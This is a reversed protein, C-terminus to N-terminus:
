RRAAVVRECRRTRDRPGAHAVDRGPGCDIVDLGPGGSIVDRGSGGLLVDAGAGGSVSDHGAGADVCDDGGRAAIRDDGRGAMLFDGRATGRLRDRRDTGFRRRSEAFSLPSCPPTLPTAESGNAAAGSPPLLATFPAAPAPAPASTSSGSGATGAGTGSTDDGGGGDGDGPDGPDAPPPPPAFSPTMWPAPETTDGARFEFTGYLAPDMGECHQEFDVGFSRLSGDPEFRAETVTFEGEITNCGRGNGGVDIGAGIGNFPYRSATYHGPALIDGDPAAFDGFWWDGNDGDIGFGVYHRAGGVGISANDPTYSWDLGQGIYDGPESDMVLRTRGGWAFAELSVDHVAGGSETLRLTAARTGAEPALYRVWVQCSSGAVVTRGSCDDARVAFDAPADDGVVAASAISVPGGDALVTVPLALGARGHDTEPWRVHSAAAAFAGPPGVQGIRVEGFLAPGGGECYQTYVIWLRNVGGDADTGIDKVEFHGAIQNCGRGDGGIDIGPRGWARFPARQADTYVGEALEAGPPAAFDLDFYDGYPGGEVHVTLYAPTGGVSVADRGGVYLRPVGAGVWDGESYMVVTDPAAAAASGPALLLVLAVAAVATACRKRWVRLVSAGV